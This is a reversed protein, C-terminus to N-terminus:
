GRSELALEARVILSEALPRDQKQEVSWCGVDLLAAAEFSALVGPETGIHGLYSQRLRTTNVEARGPTGAEIGLLAIRALLRGMDLLPNSAAVEEVGAFAVREGILYIKELELPCIIPALQSQAVRCRDEVAAWLRVARAHLRPDITALGEVRMAVAALEKDLPRVVRPQVAAQHIAAVARALTAPLTEGGSTQLLFALDADGTPLELVPMSLPRIYAVPVPLMPADLQHDLARRLADLDRLLTRRRRRRWGFGDLSITWREGRCWGGIDYSVRYRDGDSCTAAPSCSTLEVSYLERLPTDLMTRMYVSDVAWRLRHEFAMTPGHGLEKRVSGTSRQAMELAREAERIFTAVREQWGARHSRMAASASRLLDAAEFLRMRREDIGAHKGYEEIFAVGEESLASAVGFERLAPTRLSGLFRGVDLMPDGYAVSDLDILTVSEGDTLVNSHHFDGHVPCIIEAYTEVEAALRDSLLTVRGAISPLLVKLAAASRRVADAESRPTRERLLPVSRAHLFAMAEATKRVLEPYAPTKVFSALREGPVHEQLTVNLEALYGHPRALRLPGDAVQWLAWANSYRAAAARTAHMKAVLRRREAQDASTVNATLEYLLAARAQPTYGMMGVTVQRASTGLDGGARTLEREVTTPDLAAFLWPLAPDIPFPYLVLGVEPLHAMPQGLVTNETAEYRAIVDAPLPSPQEGLRLLRALLLCRSHGRVARNRIKLRYLVTCDVGPTYSFEVIKSGVLEAGTGHEILVRGLLEMARGQDLAVALGPLAPDVPLCV